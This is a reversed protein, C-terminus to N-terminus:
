TNRNNCILKESVCKDIIVEQFKSKERTHLKYEYHTTARM